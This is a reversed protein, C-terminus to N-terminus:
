KGLLREAQDLAKKIDSNVLAVKQEQEELYRIAEREEMEEVKPDFQRMWVFM